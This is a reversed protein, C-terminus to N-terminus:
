INLFHFSQNVLSFLKISLCHSPIVTRQTANSSLTLFYLIPTIFFPLSTHSVACYHKIGINKKEFVGTNNPGSYSHAMHSWLSFLHCPFSPSEVWPVWFLLRPYLCPIFQLPYIPIDWKSLFSKARISVRLWYWRLKPSYRKERGNRKRWGVEHLSHLINYKYVLLLKM